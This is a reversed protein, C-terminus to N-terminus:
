EQGKKAQIANFHTRIKEALLAARDRGSQDLDMQIGSVLNRLGTAADQIDRDDSTLAFTDLALAGALLDTAAPTQGRAQAELVNAAHLLTM